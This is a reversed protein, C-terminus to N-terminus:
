LFHVNHWLWESEHLILHSFYFYTDFSAIYAFVGAVGWVWTWENTEFFGYYPTRPEGVYMWGIALVVTVALSMVGAFIEAWVQARRRALIEPKLTSSLVGMPHTGEFLGGLVAYQIVYAVLMFGGQVAVDNLNDLPQLRRAFNATAHVVAGNAGAVISAMSVGLLGYEVSTLSRRTTM